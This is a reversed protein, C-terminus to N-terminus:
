PHERQDKPALTLSGATDNYASVIALNHRRMLRLAEKDTANRPRLAMRLIPAENHWM